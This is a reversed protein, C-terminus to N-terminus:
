IIYCIVYQIIYIRITVSDIEFLSFYMFLILCVLLTVYRKWLRYNEESYHEILYKILECIEHDFKSVFLYIWGSKLVLVTSIVIQVWFDLYFYNFHILTALGADILLRCIVTILMSMLLGINKQVYTTNILSRLIQDGYNLDYMHGIQLWKRVYRM